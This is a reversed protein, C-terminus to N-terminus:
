LGLEEILNRVEKVEAETPPEVPASAPTAINSQVQDGGGIIDKACVVSIKLEINTNDEVYPIRIEKKDSVLFSGEFTELIKQIFKEKSVSGRVAM